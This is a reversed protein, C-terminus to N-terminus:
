PGEPRDMTSLSVIEQLVFKEKETTDLKELCEKALTTTEAYGVNAMYRLARIAHPADRQLTAERIFRQLQEVTLFGAIQNQENICRDLIERANQYEGGNLFTLLVNGLMPGTWQISSITRSSRHTDIRQRVDSAIIVFQKQLPEEPQSSALVALLAEVLNERSTHEFLVMDSWIKPVHQLAGSLEVAQLIDFMVSPEPTYVNPVLQHYFEFFTDVNETSCLLKFLHQYYVSEKLSDGILVYNNGLLLLKHVKLALNKDHVHTHCVDMATVFFFVDKPDRIELEHGQLLNMVDYLITSVPGRERCFIVLLYYYSALSPEVGLGKMEALVQLALKKAERWSGLRSLTELTANLTGLNPRVGQRHMNTLLEETLTWRMESSDKLYCVIRLLSNYTDVDLPIGKEQTEQYLKWAQQVQVSKSLGRILTAYARADKTELSNFITDVLSFNLGVKRDRQVAQRFWREEIFDEDPPDKGNYFCLLELLSQLSDGDVDVKKSRLAEYVSVAGSVDINRIYTQLTTVTVEDDKQRVPKPMFDKIHPQAHDDEFCIPYEDRIWKAAKRGSEKSLAYVRKSVNSSPIFYPDDHFKYHPATFDRTITSALAELVATDSRRIRRPIVIEADSQTSSSIPCSPFKGRRVAALLYKGCGLIHDSKKTLSMELKKMGGFGFESLLISAM